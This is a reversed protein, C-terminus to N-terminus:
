EEGGGAISFGSSRHVSLDPGFFLAEVGELEDVLELGRRPGMVFLGTALADADTATPATVTVAISRTAPRGTAPDLIHHYRHGDREFYQMYDGSTVVAGASATVSAYLDPRRPHRIGVKWPRGRNDGLLRIDGGGDVVYARIGRQELVQAARDVGFGKGIGAIGIRMGAEPLRLTSAGSDLEVREYGVKQLCAEVEGDKPVRRERFSWLGACTAFTIDFAGGTLGSIEISRQVVQMLEDGVALAPGGAARNVASIESTERWESLLAEVRDVEAFAAEIAARATERDAHVVQIAFRTGMLLREDRVHVPSGPDRSCGQVALSLTIAAIAPKFVNRTTKSPM